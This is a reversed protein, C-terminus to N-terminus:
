EKLDALRQRLWARAFYWDAEATKPAIGLVTAAEACTLGGFFRLEVIRCKREDVGRLDEMAEDVDILEVESTAWVALDPALTIRVNEGGRKAAGHRRAHDILIKRMANAAAARLEISSDWNTGGLRLVAEHVLATPQLTHNLREQSMYRAALMHLEDYLRALLGGSGGEEGDSGRQNEGLRVLSIV